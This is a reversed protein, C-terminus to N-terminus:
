DNIIDRVCGQIELKVKNPVTHGEGDRMAEYYPILHPALRHYIEEELDIVGTSSPTSGAILTVPADEDESSNTPLSGFFTPASIARKREMRHRYNIIRTCGSEAIVCIKNEKDWYECRLCPPNNDLYIGRQKNYMGNDVCRAIFHFASRGVRSPDLKKLAEFCLLRIEQATDSVSQDPVTFKRAKVSVLTEVMPKMENFAM